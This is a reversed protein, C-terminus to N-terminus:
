WLPLVDSCGLEGKCFFRKKEKPKRHPQRFLKRLTRSPNGRKSPFETVAHSRLMGIYARILQLRAARALHYAHCSLLAASQANRTELPLSCEHKTMPKRGLSRGGNQTEPSSNGISLQWRLFRNRPTLHGCGRLKSPDRGLHERLDQRGSAKHM